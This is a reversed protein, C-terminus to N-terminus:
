DLQYQIRRQASGAAPRQQRHWGCASCKPLTFTQWNQWGGTSPIQITGLVTGDLRVRLQGGGSLSAARVSISYIAESDPVNVTYELWEGSNLYGVDYGGGTDTTAEIGVDDSRYAGGPNGVTTNHYAM